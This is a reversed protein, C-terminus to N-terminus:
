YNTHRKRRWDQRPLLNRRVACVTPTSKVLTTAMTPPALTSWTIEGNLGAGSKDIPAAPALYKKKKKRDELIKM